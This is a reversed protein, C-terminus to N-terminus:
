KRTLKIDTPVDFWSDKAAKVDRIYHTVFCLRCSSFCHPVHAGSGRCGPCSEDTRCLNHQMPHWHPRTRGDATVYTCRPEDCNEDGPCVRLNPVDHPLDCKQDGKHEESCIYKRSDHQCSGKGHFLNCYAERCNEPQFCTHRLTCARTSCFRGRPCTLTSPSAQHQGDHLLPCGEVMAVPNALSPCAAAKPCMHNAPCEQVRCYRGKICFRKCENAIYAPVVVNMMVQDKMHEMVVESVTHQPPEQVQEATKKSRRKRRHTKKAIKISSPAKSSGHNEAVDKMDMDDDSSAPSRHSSPSLPEAVPDPQVLAVKTLASAEVPEPLEPVVPESVAQDVAPDAVLAVQDVAPVQEDAQDLVVPEDAAQDAVPSVQDVAPAAPVHAPESDSLAADNSESLPFAMADADVDEEILDFEVEPNYLKAIFDNYGSREILRHRVENSEKSELLVHNDCLYAMDKEYYTPPIEKLKKVLVGNVMVYEYVELEGIYVASLPYYTGHTKWQMLFRSRGHCVPLTAMPHRGPVPIIFTDENEVFEVVPRILGAGVKNLKPVNFKIKVDKLDKHLVDCIAIIQTRMNLAYMRLWQLYLRYIHEPLGEAKDLNFADLYALYCGCGFSEDCVFYQVNKIQELM